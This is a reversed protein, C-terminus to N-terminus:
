ADQRVYRQVGDVTRLAFMARLKWDPVDINLEVIPKLEVDDPFTCTCLLAGLQDYFAIKM